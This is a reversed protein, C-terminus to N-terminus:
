WECRNREKDLKRIRIAPSSGALGTVALLNRVALRGWVIKLELYKSLGIASVYNTKVEVKM